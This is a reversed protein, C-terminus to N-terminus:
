DLDLYNDIAAAASPMMQRSQNVALALLHENWLCGLGPAMDAKLVMIEWHFVDRDIGKRPLQMKDNSLTTIPAKRAPHKWTMQDAIAPDTHNGLGKQSYTNGPKAANSIPYSTQLRACIHKRRKSQHDTM